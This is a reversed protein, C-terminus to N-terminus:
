KSWITIKTRSFNHLVIVPRFRIKIYSENSALCIYVTKFQNSTATTVANRFISM